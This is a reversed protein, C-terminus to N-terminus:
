SVYFAPVTTVTCSAATYTGSLAGGTCVRVQSACLNGPAVSPAQYAVVSGGSPVTAVGFTCLAGAADDDSADPGPKVEGSDGGGALAAAGGDAASCVSDGCGSTGADAHSSASSASSGCGPVAIGAIWVCATLWAWSLGRSRASQESSPRVPTRPTMVM